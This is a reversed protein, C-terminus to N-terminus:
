TTQAQSLALRRILLTPNFDDSKSGSTLARFYAGMRQIKRHFQMLAWITTATDVVGLCNQAAQFNKRDIGMMPALTQAHAVVDDITKMQKPSLEAAAPCANLLEPLSLATLQPKEIGQAAQNRGKNDTHEKNSKHCHRVNQSANATMERTEVDIQESALDVKLDNATLSILLDACEPLSLKRRLIRLATTAAHNDPDLLLINNAVARLKARAYAIQEQQRMADEALAAIENLRQFLPALDFGFRLARGEHPNHRTFRKKNPSDRRILLGLDQLIAAHRRITRDTIGNRRFSLTMNSAFVTHHTRKPPLCSLMADLTGLVSPKLGIQSAAKRLTEIVIHREAVSNDASLPERNRAGLPDTAQFFAMNKERCGIPFPAWGM